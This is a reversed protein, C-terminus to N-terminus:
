WLSKPLRRRLGSQIDDSSHVRPLGKVSGTYAPNIEYTGERVIGVRRFVQSSLYTKSYEALKKMIGNRRHERREPEDKLHPFREEEVFLIVDSTQVSKSCLNQSVRITDVIRQYRTPQKSLELLVM